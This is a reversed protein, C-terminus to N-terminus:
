SDPFAAHAERAEQQLFETSELNKHLIFLQKKM